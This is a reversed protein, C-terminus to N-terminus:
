FSMSLGHRGLTMGLQKCAELAEQDPTDYCIVTDYVLNAGLQICVEEWDRMWQGDGWGYSGFLGLNKGKLYPKCADFMPQFVFPELSEMGMAPCGFAITDYASITSVDFANAKFLSVEVGVEQIGEVVAMAMMETNGTGSFYIVAVQSM